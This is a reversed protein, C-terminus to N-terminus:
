YDHWLKRCVHKNGDVSPRVATGKLGPVSDTGAVIDIGAAQLKKITENAYELKAEASKMGLASVMNEKVFSDILGM